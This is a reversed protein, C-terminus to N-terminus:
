PELNGIEHVQWPSLNAQTPWSYNRWQVLPSFKKRKKKQAVCPFLFLSLSLSLKKKKKREKM